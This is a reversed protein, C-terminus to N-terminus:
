ATTLQFRKETTREFLRGLYSISDYLQILRSLDNPAGLNWAADVQRLQGLESEYTARLQEALKGLSTELKAQEATFLSRALAGTM